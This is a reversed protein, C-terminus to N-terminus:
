KERKGIFIFGIGIFVVACLGFIRTVWAGLQVVYTALLVFVLAGLFAWFIASGKFM